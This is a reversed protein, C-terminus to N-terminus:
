PRDNTEPMGRVCSVERSRRKMELPRSSAVAPGAGPPPRAAGNVRFYPGGTGVPPFFCVPCCSPMTGRQPPGFEPIVNQILHGPSQVLKRRHFSVIISVGCYARPPAPQGDRGAGAPDWM